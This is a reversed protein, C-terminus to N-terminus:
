KHKKFDMELPMAEKSFYNNTNRTHLYCKVKELERGKELHELM